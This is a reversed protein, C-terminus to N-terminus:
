IRGGTTAQVKPDGLIISEAAVAFAAGAGATGGYKHAWAEVFSTMLAEEDESLPIRLSGLRLNRQTPAPMATKRSETTAQFDEDPDTTVQHWEVPSWMLGVEVGEKAYESLITPDFTSFEASRNDDLALRVKQADSLGSRRVVTLAAKDQDIVVLKTIGAELAAEVTGNGALIVGDEDIVIGRGVGVTNISDHISGITRPTHIRANRPDQILDALSTPDAPAHNATDGGTKPGTAL